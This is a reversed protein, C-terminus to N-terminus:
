SIEIMGRSFMLARNINWLYPIIHDRQHIEEDIKKDESCCIFSPQHKWQSLTSQLYDFYRPTFLFLGKQYLSSTNVLWLITTQLWNRVPTSSRWVRLLALMAHNDIFQPKRCHHLFKRQRCCATCLDFSSSAEFCTTNFFLM